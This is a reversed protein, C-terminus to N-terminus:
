VHTVGVFPIFEGLAEADLIGFSLGAVGVLDYLGGGGGRAIRGFNFFRDLKARGGINLRMGEIERTVYAGVGFGM